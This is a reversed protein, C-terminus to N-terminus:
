AISGFTIRECYLEVQVRRSSETPVAANVVPSFACIGVNHLNVTHLVTKMDRDLLQLTAERESKEGNGKIVMEQYWAYFGGSGAESAQLTLNSIELHGTVKSASRAELPVGPQTTQKVEFAEIKSVRTCDIGPIMLRFNSSLWQQQKVAGATKVISGDGAVPASMEPAIRVTLIGVQKSSGDCAPFGIGSIIANSFQLRTAMKYDFDLTLVAGNKRTSAGNLSTNIWEALVGHVPMDVQAIIEPIWPPGLHKKAFGSTTPESIVDARPFGGEISHLEGVAVREIELVFRSGTYSRQDAASAFRQLGPSLGLAIGGAIQAVQGLFARRAQALGITQKCLGFESSAQPAITSDTASQLNNQVVIRKDKM